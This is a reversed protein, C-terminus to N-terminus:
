QLNQAQFDINVNSIILFSISFIMDPKVDALLFREEFFRKKANKNSMSFISFIMEDTDITTTNMKQAGVYTKWIKLGLQSAFTHSM